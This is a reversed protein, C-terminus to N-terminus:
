GNSVAPLQNNLSSHLLQSLRVQRGLLHMMAVSCTQHQSSLSPVTIYTGTSSCCLM